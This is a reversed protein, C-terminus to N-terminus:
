KYQKWLIVHYIWMLVFILFIMGFCSVLWRFLFISIASSSHTRDYHEVFAGKDRYTYLLAVFDEEKPHHGCRYAVGTEHFDSPPLISIVAQPTDNAYTVAYEDYAQVVYIAKYKSHDIKAGEYTGDEPIDMISLATSHYEITRNVYICQLIITVILLILSVSMGIYSRTSLLYGNEDNERWPNLLENGCKPCHRHPYRMFSASGCKPCAVRFNSLNLIFCLIAIALVAYFLFRFGEYMQFQKKLLLIEAISFLSVLISGLAIYKGAQANISNRSNNM